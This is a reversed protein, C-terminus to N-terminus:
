LLPLLGLCSPRSGGKLRTPLLSISIALEADWICFRHACITERQLNLRFYRCDLTFPYVFCVTQSRPFHYSHTNLPWLPRNAIYGMIDLFPLPGEKKYEKTFRINLHIGNLHLLFANFKNWAMLGYWLPRMFVLELSQSVRWSLTFQRKPALM